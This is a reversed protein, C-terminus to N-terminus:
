PWRRVPLKGVLESRAREQGKIASKLSDVYMVDGDSVMDYLYREAEQFYKLAILANKDTGYGDLYMFGLRLFVPGAIYYADDHTMLRICRDYIRFALEPNKSVYYGKRYMDGIKYLSVLRGTFAGQSFCHFAKEYDRPISRGYYYCYGLNETALDNGHEMAMTYYHVAKSFDQCYGRGDYYLAGLDNMADSNGKSISDEYLSVIFDFLERPMVKDRDCNVLGSALEYSSLSEDKIREFYAIAEPSKEPDLMLHVKGLFDGTM